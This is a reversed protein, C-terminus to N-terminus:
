QDNFKIGGANLVVLFTGVMLGIITIFSFVIFVQNFSFKPIEFKMEKPKDVKM